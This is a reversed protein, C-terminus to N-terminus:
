SISSLYLFFFDLIISANYLYQPHVKGKFQIVTRARFPIFFLFLCTVRWYIVLFLCDPSITNLHKNLTIGVACGRGTHFGLRFPPPYLGSFHGMMVNILLAVQHTEVSGGLGLLASQAARRYSLLMTVSSWFCGWASSPGSLSPTSVLSCSYGIVTKFFSATQSFILNWLSFLHPPHHQSLQQDALRAKIIVSLTFTPSDVSECRPQRGGILSAAGGEKWVFM